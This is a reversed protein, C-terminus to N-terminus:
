IQVVVFLVYTINTLQIGATLGQALFTPTGNVVTGTTSATPAAGAAPVVYVEWQTAAGPETWALQASTM